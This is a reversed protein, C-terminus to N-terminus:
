GHFWDAPDDPWGDPHERLHGAIRLADARVRAAESEWFAAVARRVIETESTQASRALQKIQREQEADFYVMKKFAKAM